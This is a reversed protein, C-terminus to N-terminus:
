GIRAMIDAARQQDQEAYIETTSISAHGLVTRSAELGFERRIETARTHRLQHPHWPAIGAKQCARTIAHGYSSVAFCEGPAKRKPGPRKRSVQSPQVTTQRAARRQANWWAKSEAPSFLYADVATRLFPALAAQARPGVFIVRDGGHHETKWTQPRYEWIPGTMRLEGQRMSCVEGPRAGTLLQVQVMAWVTPSVHTKIAEVDVLSVPQVSANDPAEGRRFGEVALLARWVTEPVVERSVAWKWARRIRGLHRNIQTRVWGARRMDEMIARIALPGFQDAPTSGYLRRVVRFASKHLQQESTPRGAKVYRVSVVQEWYALLLESVTAPRRSPLKSPEPGPPRGAALEAVFRHYRELSEASDFQGLYYRKGAVEIFAQGTSHRRYKPVRM